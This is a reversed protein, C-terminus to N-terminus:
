YNMLGDPIEYEWDLSYGGADSNGTKSLAHCITYLGTCYVSSVFDFAIPRAWWLSSGKRNRGERERLREYRSAGRTGRPAIENISNRGVRSCEEGRKVM